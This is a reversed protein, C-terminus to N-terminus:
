AMWKGNKSQQKKVWWEEYELEMLEYFDYPDLEKKKKKSM